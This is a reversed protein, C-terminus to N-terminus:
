KSEKKEWWREVERGGRGKESEGEGGMRGGKEKERM